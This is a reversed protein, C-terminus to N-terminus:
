ACDEYFVVPMLPYNEAYWDRLEDANMGATAKERNDMEPFGLLKETLDYKKMKM